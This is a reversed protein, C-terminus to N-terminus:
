IRVTLVHACGVACSFRQGLGMNGVKLFILGELFDFGFTYALRRWVIFIPHANPNEEHRSLMYLQGRWSDMHAAPGAWFSLPSCLCALAEVTLIPRIHPAHVSHSLYALALSTSSLVALPSSMAARIELSTRLYIVSLNPPHEPTEGDQMSLTPLHHM